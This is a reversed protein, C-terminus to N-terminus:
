LPLFGKKTRIENARQKAITFLTKVGDILVTREGGGNSGTGVGTMQVKHGAGELATTIMTDTSGAEFRRVQIGNVKATPDQVPPPTIVRQLHGNPIASDAASTNVNRIHRIVRESSLGGSLGRWAEYLAASSITIKAAVCCKLTEVARDYNTKVQSRITSISQTQNPKILALATPNILLEVGADDCAKRVNVAEPDGAMLQAKFVALPTINVRDRNMGVFVAAAESPQIDHVICPLADIDIRLLAAAHRHQGDIIFYTKTTVIAGFRRWQFNEAIGDIIKKSRTSEINRQYSLDVKLKAKPVLELEPMKGVSGM